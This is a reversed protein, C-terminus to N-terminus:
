EANYGECTDTGAVVPPGYGDLRTVTVTDDSCRWAHGRNSEGCCVSRDFLHERIPSPLTHAESWPIARVCRSAFGDRVSTPGHCAYFKNAGLEGLPYCVNSSGIWGIAGPRTYSEAEPITPTEVCQLVYRSHPVPVASLLFALIASIM